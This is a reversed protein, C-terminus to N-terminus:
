MRRFCDGILEDAKRASDAGRIHGYHERVTNPHDHLYKAALEYGGDGSLKIITTAVIHRICHPGCGNPSGELYRRTMARWAKALGDWMGDPNSASVFLLDCEPSALHQRYVNLYRELHPWVGEHIPFDYDADKAAGKENKLRTRQIFIKWRGNSDKRIDGSNDKRYTLEQLNGLRLPNSAALILLLRKRAWMAEAKGGTSPRDADIRRVAEVIAEMPNDRELVARIPEFPDRSKTQGKAALKIASRLKAHVVSLHKVFKNRGKIGVKRGIDPRSALFGHVPHCLMATSVLNREIGSHNVGGSRSKKWTLFKNIQEMNCLQGLSQAEESSLGCGGKQIDRILFGIYASVFDFAIHASTCRQGDTIHTWDDPSRKHRGIPKLRWPENGEPTERMLGGISAIPDIKWRFWDVFEKRFGPLCKNPKLRYPDKSQEKLRQGYASLTSPEAARIEVVTQPALNSLAGPAMSFFNELRTLQRSCGARPKAGSLWRKLTAHSVGAGAATAKVSVGSAFIDKLALQLPSYNGSAAAAERDRALLLRHWWGLLWKRNSAYASIGTSGPPALTVLHENRAKYFGVRLETGVLASGSKGQQKRFAKLASKLNPLIAPKPMRALGVRDTMSEELESYTTICTSMSTRRRVRVPRSESTSRLHLSSPIFYHVGAILKNFEIVQTKM